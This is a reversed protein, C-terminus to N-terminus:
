QLSQQTENLFDYAPRDPAARPRVRSKQVQKNTHNCRVVHLCRRTSELIKRHATSGVGGGESGQLGVPMVVPVAVVFVAVTSAASVTDATAMDLLVVSATVASVTFAGNGALRAGVGTDVM